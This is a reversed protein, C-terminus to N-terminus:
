RNGELAGDQLEFVAVEPRCLFRVRLIRPTPETGLGRNVYMRTKGGLDYLGAEYKKGYRSLTILAGYFPLRVQGGHTHGCVVLDFARIGESEALDPTHHLLVSPVSPDVQAAVDRLLEESIRLDHFGIGAIQLATSRRTHTVVVGDLLPVGAGAFVANIEAFTEFNGTVAFVRDEGAIEVLRELFARLRGLQTPENLYDGTLLVLDPRAAAVADLIERTWSDTDEDMHLDSLHVIRMSGGVGEATVLHRTVELWGPEICHAYLLCCLEVGLLSTWMWRFWRRPESRGRLRRIWSSVAMVPVLTCLSVFVLLDLHKLIFGMSVGLKGEKQLHRL